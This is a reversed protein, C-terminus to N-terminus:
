EKRQVTRCEPYASCGWFQRGTNRGKKAIRLVMQQGCNPCIKETKVECGQFRKELQQVHQRHTKWTPALQVSQIGTRAKRVQSESLLPSRFSKIYSIYDSRQRVNVPMPSKFTSKGVFVVVSHIMKSSINLAKELAKVHKYNQHLPNQFPFSTSSFQQTWQKQTKEGIILGKMNKTEVVFIGFRSVFIHDIQTTGDSTPLTVNHFRLYTRGPLFFWATVRVFAEGLMGKFRSSKLFRLFGFFLIIPILWWLMKLIETILISFGM